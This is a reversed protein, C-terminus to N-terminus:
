NLFHRLTRDWPPMEEVSAGKETIIGATDLQCLVLWYVMQLSSPSSYIGHTVHRLVLALPQSSMEALLFEQQGQLPGLNWERWTHPTQLELKLSESATKQGTHTDSISVTCEPLCVFLFRNRIEKQTHTRLHPRAGALLHLSRLKSESRVNHSCLVSEWLDVCV